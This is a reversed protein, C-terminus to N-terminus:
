RDLIELLKGSLSARSVLAMALDFKIGVIKSQAEYLLAESALLEEFTSQGIVLQKRLLVSEEELTDLNEEALVLASKLFDLQNVAEAIQVKVNKNSEIFRDKALSVNLEARELEKESKKGNFFTRSYVIGMREDSTSADTDLSRAIDTTFLLQGKDKLRVVDPEMLSSLYRLYDSRVQPAESPVTDLETDSLESVFAEFQLLNQTPIAGFEALFKNRSDELKLLLDSRTLILATVSKKARVYQSTDGIGSKSIEEVQALLPELVKVRSEVLAVLETYEALTIWKELKQFAVANFTAAYSHREAEAVLESGSIKADLLGGDYLLKSANLNVIAGYEADTIDEAGSYLTGKVSFDKGAQLLGIEVLKSNLNSKAFKLKPDSSVASKIIEKFPADFDINEVEDLVLQADALSFKELTESTEEQMGSSRKVVKDYNKSVTEGFGALHYKCGALIICSFLLPIWSKYYVFFGWKDTRLKYSWSPNIWGM